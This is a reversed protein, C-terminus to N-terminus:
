TTGKPQILYAARLEQALLFVAMAYYRSNNYHTIAQFNDYALWYEQGSEVTFDLLRASCTEGVRPSSAPSVGSQQWEQCTRTAGLEALVSENGIFAQVTISQGRKWGFQLLYNAVSGIADEPSHLLDARGDENFDVAYRRYSGPMFQPIGLAGAFSGKVETLDIQQERSLLLLQELEGRFFEGRRPYDFALTILVDLTSFKGVHRGYITEVGLLAVVIEAPVGYRDEARALAAQHQQWFAVGRKIYRAELYTARYEPWPKRTFPRSLTDIVAQRHSSQAFLAELEAREFKHRQVMEDIFVAMGPLEVAQVKPSFALLLLLLFTLRPMACIKDRCDPTGSNFKVGRKTSM